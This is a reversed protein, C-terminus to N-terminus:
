DQPTRHPDSVLWRDMSLALKKDEKDKAERKAGRRRGRLTRRKLAQDKEALNVRESEGGGGKVDM